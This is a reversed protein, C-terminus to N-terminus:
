PTVALPTAMGAAYHGQLNCILLYAGAPLDLDLAASANPPLERTEGLVHVQDEVVRGTAYDYPLPAASEDVAVVLMEHLMSKSWNTVDFRVPGAAVNPHDTRISMMGGMLGPPM